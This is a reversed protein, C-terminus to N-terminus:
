HGLIWKWIPKVLIVRNEIRIEDEDGNTLILGDFLDYKKMAALLGAIERQRNDAGLHDTVQILSEIKRKSIVVFDCEKKDSFYFIEKGRNKLELFVINELLRGTNPSSTVAVEQYMGADILYLKDPNYIQKKLSPSHMPISFFLYADLLYSVYNKVTMISKIGTMKAINHYSLPVGINSSIFSVIERLNIESKIGRRLVIDRYVINKLYEQLIPRFQNIVVEPFGGNELYEAFIKKIKIRIDREYFGSATIKGLKYNVLESFSLPFLNIPYNRGTLATGIEKSLLRANSGTIYIKYRGDELLRNIFKEWGAINQIEDFFLYVKSKKDVEIIEYFCEVLVALDTASFNLLKEDEFNFYLFNEKSIGTKTRIKKWILRMLFSKGSRRVGTIVIAEKLANIKNFLSGSIVEREIPNVVNLFIKRQSLILEKLLNRNIM